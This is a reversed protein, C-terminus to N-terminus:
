PLKGLDPVGTELPRVAPNMQCRICIGYQLMMYLLLRM